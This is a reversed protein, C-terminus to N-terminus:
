CFRKLVNGHHTSSRRAQLPNKLSVVANRHMRNRLQIIPALELRRQTTASSDFDPSKAPFFPSVYETRGQLISVRRERRVHCHQCRETTSITAEASTIPLAKHRRANVSIRNLRKQRATNQKLSPSQTAARWNQLPSSKASPAPMKSSRQPHSQVKPPMKARQNKMGQLMTLLLLRVCPFGRELEPPDRADPVDTNLHISRPFFAVPIFAPLTKRKTATSEAAFPAPCRKSHPM